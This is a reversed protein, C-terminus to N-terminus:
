GEKRPTGEARWYGGYQPWGQRRVQINYDPYVKELARTFQAETLHETDATAVISNGLVSVSICVRSDYVGKAWLQGSRRIEQQATYIDISM